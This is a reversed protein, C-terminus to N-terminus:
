NASRPKAVRRTVYSTFRARSLVRTHKWVPSSSLYYSGNKAKLSAVSINTLGSLKPRSVHETATQSVQPVTLSAARRTFTPRESKPADISFVTAIPNAFTVTRKRKPIETTEVPPSIPRAPPRVPSSGSIVEPNLLAVCFTVVVTIMALMNSIIPTIPQLNVEDTHFPRLRVAFSDTEPSPTESLDRICRPQSVGTAPRRFNLSATHSYGRYGTM